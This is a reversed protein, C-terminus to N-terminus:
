EIPAAGKMADSRFRFTQALRKQGQTRNM